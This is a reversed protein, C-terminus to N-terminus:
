KYCGDNVRWGLGGLRVQDGEGGACTSKLPNESDKTINTLMHLFAGLDHEM